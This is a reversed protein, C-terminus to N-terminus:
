STLLKWKCWIDSVLKDLISVVHVSNPDNQWSRYMEEVYNSNTGNAFPEAASTKQQKICLTAARNRWLNNCFYKTLKNARYM